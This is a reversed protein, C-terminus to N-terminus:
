HTVNEAKELAELLKPLESMDFGINYLALLKKAQETSLEGSVVKELISDIRHATDPSEWAISIPDDAVVLIKSLTPWILEITKLQHATYQKDPDDLISFILDLTKEARELFSGRIQAPKM